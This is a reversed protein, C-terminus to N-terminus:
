SPNAWVYFDDDHPRIVTINNAILYAERSSVADEILSIVAIPSPSGDGLDTLSLLHSVLRTASRAAEYLNHLPAQLAQDLAPDDKVLGAYGLVAQLSTNLSHAVGATLYQTIQGAKLLESSATQPLDRRDQVIAVFGQYEGESGMRPSLWLRVPVAVGDSAVLHVNLEDSVGLPLTAVAGEVLERDGQAVLDLAPEGILYRGAVMENLTQNTFTTVDAADVLWFGHFPVELVPHHTVPSSM